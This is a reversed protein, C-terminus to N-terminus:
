QPHFSRRLPPKPPLNISSYSLIKNTALPNVVFGTNHIITEETTQVHPVVFNATALQFQYPYGCCM